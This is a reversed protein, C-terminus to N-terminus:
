YWEGMHWIVGYENDYAYFHLDEEMGYANIFTILDQWTEVDHCNFGDNDGYFLYGVYSISYRSGIKVGEEDFM